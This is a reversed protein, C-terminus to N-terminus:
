LIVWPHREVATGVMAEFATLAELPTMVTQMTDRYWMHEFADSPPDITISISTPDVPDTPILLVAVIRAQFGPLAIQEFDSM